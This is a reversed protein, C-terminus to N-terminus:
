FGERHTRHQGHQDANAEVADGIRQGRARDHAVARNGGRGRDAGVHRFAAVPQVIAIIQASRAKARQRLDRRGIRAPQLEGPGEACPRVPSAFHGRQLDIRELDAVRDIDAGGIIVDDREVRFATRLFPAETGTLVHAGRRVALAAADGIVLRGISGPAGGASFADEGAGGIRAQQRDVRFGAPGAGTEPDIARDVQHFAHAFPGGSVEAGVTTRPL